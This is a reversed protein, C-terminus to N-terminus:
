SKISRGYLKKCQYSVVEILYVIQGGEKGLVRLYSWYQPDGKLCLFMLLTKVFTVICIYIFSAGRLFCVIIFFYSHTISLTTDRERTDDFTWCIEMTTYISELSYMYYNMVRSMTLGWM